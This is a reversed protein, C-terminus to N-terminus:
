SPPLMELWRRIMNRVKEVAEAGYPSMGPLLAALADNARTWAEQRERAVFGRRLSAAEFAVVTRFGGHSEKRHMELALQGTAGQDEPAWGCSGFNCRLRRGM